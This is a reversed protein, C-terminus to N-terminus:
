ISYRLGWGAGYTDVRKIRRRASMYDDELERLEMVNSIEGEYYVKGIEIFDDEFNYFRYVVEVDLYKKPIARKKKLPKKRNKFRMGSDSTGVM